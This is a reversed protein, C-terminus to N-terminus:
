VLEGLIVFLLLLVKHDGSNQLQKVLIDLTEQYCVEVSKGSLIREVFPQIERENMM